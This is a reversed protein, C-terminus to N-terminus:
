GVEVFEVHARDVTPRAFYVSVDANPYFASLAPSLEELRSLQRRRLVDPDTEPKAIERFWSCGEHGIAVIRRIGHGRVLFKTWHKGAWETRPFEDVPLLCHPGGPVAITDFSVLDLRSTLFEKIHARFRYDSCHIVLADPHREDWSETTVYSDSAVATM